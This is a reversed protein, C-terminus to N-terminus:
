SEGDGDDDNVSVIDCISASKLSRRCYECLKLIGWECWKKPLVSWTLLEIDSDAGGTGM